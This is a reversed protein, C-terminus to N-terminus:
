FLEDIAARVGQWLYKVLLIWLTLTILAVPVAVLVIGVIEIIDLKM